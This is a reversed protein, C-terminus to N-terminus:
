RLRRAGQGPRALLFTPEPFGRDQAAHAINHAVTDVDQNNVLAIVAGGFGGGTMRAGLQGAAGFASDLEVTTVEYLDRLSIHSDKMLEKFTAFDGNDLAKAADITRATEEVVHRIRQQELPNEGYHVANDLERITKNQAHQVKDIVGRRSAYQGDNLVHPANTNAILLAMDHGELDFPVERVENTQFDVVLAHAQSGFLSANQDLGGTSAGVVDNEARICADVLQKRENTSPHRHHDLEFAAIATACELAASSSLGAGLPVDSVIALNMGQCDLIGAQQAAWISGAVYGSWDNPHGPTIDDLAVTTSVTDGDYVSVIHLTNDTRTSAAVATNQELAFPISIGGAYDIHEGILNVRGPAAWVGLPETDFHEHFLQTADDALTDDSRTTAWKCM